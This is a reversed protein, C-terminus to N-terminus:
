SFIIEISRRRDFIAGKNQDKFCKLEIKANTSAIKAAITNRLGVILRSSYFILNYM